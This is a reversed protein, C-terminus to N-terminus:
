GQSSETAKLFKDKLGYYQDFLPDAKSKVAAIDSPAPNRGLTGFGEFYIKSLSELHKVVAESAGSVESPGAIRVRAAATQLRVNVDGLADIEGQGEEQTPIEGESAFLLSANREARLLDESAGAFAAYAEARESRQFQEKAISRQESSALWSAGIGTGGALLGTIVALWVAQRFSVKSESDAM